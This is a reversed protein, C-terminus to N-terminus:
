ISPTLANLYNEAFALDEVQERGYILRSNKVRRPKLSMRRSSPSQTTIIKSLDDFSDKWVVKRLSQCIPWVKVTFVQQAMVTGHPKSAVTSGPAGVKLPKHAKRIM